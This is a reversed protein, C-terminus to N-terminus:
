HYILEKLNPDIYSGYHAQNVIEGNAFYISRTGGIQIYVGAVSSTINGQSDRQFFVKFDSVNISSADFGPENVFDYYSNWFKAAFINDAWQTTSNAQTWSLSGNTSNTVPIKGEETMWIDTFDVFADYVEKISNSLEQSTLVINYSHNGYLWIQQNPDWEFSFDEQQAEIIKVMLGTDVLAQMRADDTMLGDFVDDSTIKESLRYLSTMSNLEHLNNLDISEKASTTFDLFSTISIMALIVLVAMVIILEILTFGKNRYKKIM